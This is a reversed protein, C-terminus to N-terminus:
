LEWGARYAPKVWEEPVKANTVEGTAPNLELRQNMRIALNGLLVMKTLPGAHEAFSSGAAAGGKCARIWEAYVGPSREYKQAPPKAVLEAQKKADLMRVGDGYCDAVLMGDSGIWLQSGVDAYEPWDFEPPLERPRAESLGGDHWVVRVPGRAGRAAFEYVIRSLKPASEEYLRTTEAEIRSPLGLSLTWFAADMAHAAIDGLAGCGFDWWGRWKFPAYAPHYPREPAPGLWLNWDLWPPTEYAELPRELGQPWIPRDTWYHVERVSGIWGAEVVERILRTGNGAHGQNGMQTAVKYRRAGDMLAQVEHLTRALPKQCFVHKGHKMALMAAAAHAHDPITVTVADIHAGERDLMERYDRYKKAQPFARFSTAASHLDVDCLAYINETSVGRVDSEGKGGVGICAINLTDSPATFGRGGLVHRPVITFAAGALAVDGVFSRRSIPESSM